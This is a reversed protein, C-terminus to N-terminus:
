LIHNELKLYSCSENMELCGLDRKSPFKQGAGWFLAKTCIYICLLTPLNKLQIEEWYKRVLKQNLDPERLELEERLCTLANNHIFYHIIAKLLHFLM